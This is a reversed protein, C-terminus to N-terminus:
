PSSSRDKPSGGLDRHEAGRRVHSLFVLPRDMYPHPDAHGPVWVAAASGSKLTRHWRSVFFAACRKVPDVGSRDECHPADSGNLRCRGM